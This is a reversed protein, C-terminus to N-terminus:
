RMFFDVRGGLCDLWIEVWKRDRSGHLRWWMSKVEAENMWRHMGLSAFVMCAESHLPPEGEVMRPIQDLLGEDRLPFIIVDLDKASLGKFLVSGALACTLGVKRLEPDLERLLALADHLTWTM